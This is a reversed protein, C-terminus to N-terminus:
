TRLNWQIQKAITIWLNLIIWLRHDLTIIPVQGPNLKQVVQQIVDMSHRIMAVSKSDDPFLSLMASIAPTFQLPPLQSAHYAAWSINGYTKDVISSEVHQLWRIKADLEKDFSLGNGKVPGNVNPIAVDKKKLQVPHITTYGDPLDSVIRKSPITEFDCLERHSTGNGHNQPHQLISIGTGHFSGRATTSSPNHDINDVAATTFLDNQLNLPCVIQERHYQHCVWNGMAMATTIDMVRDYSISLGLHFLVDVLNCKCTKAHVRLVVYTPLPIERDKNHHVGKSNSRCRAQSNYHLLQSISLAPQSM